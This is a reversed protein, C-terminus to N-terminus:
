QENIKEFEATFDQNNSFMNKKYRLYKLWKKKSNNSNVIKNLSKSLLTIKDLEYKYLKKWDFLSLKEYWTQNAKDIYKNELFWDIYTKKSANSTLTDSNIRTAYARRCNKIEQKRNQDSDEGFTAFDLILSQIACPLTVRKCEAVTKKANDRRKNIIAKQLKDKNYRSYNTIFLKKCQMVLDYKTMVSLDNKFSRNAFRKKVITFLYSSM